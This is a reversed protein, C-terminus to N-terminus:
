VDTSDKRTTSTLTLELVELIDTLSVAGPDPTGISADAHTRARGRRASYSSTRDRGQAAAAVAVSWAQALTKGDAVAKALTRSFPAAADLLTKDGEEAGGVTSIEAQAAHVAQVIGAHTPDAAYAKAAAELMKQWIM